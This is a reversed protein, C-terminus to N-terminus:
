NVTPKAACSRATRQALIAGSATDQKLIEFGLADVFSRDLLQVLAYDDECSPQDRTVPVLWNLHYITRYFEVTSQM